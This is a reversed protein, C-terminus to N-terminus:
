RYLEKWSEIEELLEQIHNDQEVIQDELEHIYKLRGQDSKYWWFCLILIVILLIKGFAEHSDNNSSM